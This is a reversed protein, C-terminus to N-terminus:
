NVLLIGKIYSIDYTRKISNLFKEADEKKAFAKYNTPVEPVNDVYVVLWIYTEM